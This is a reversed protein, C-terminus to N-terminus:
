HEYGSLGRVRILSVCVRIIKGHQENLYDFVLPSRFIVGRTMQAVELYNIEGNLNFRNACLSWDVVISVRCFDFKRILCCVILESLDPVDSVVLDM